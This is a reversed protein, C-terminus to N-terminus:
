LPLYIRVKYVGPLICSSPLQREFGLEVITESVILTIGTELNGDIASVNIKCEHKVSFM